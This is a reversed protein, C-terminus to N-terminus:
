GVRRQGNRLLMGKMEMIADRITELTKNQVEIQREARRNSETIVRMAEDKFENLVMFYRENDKRRAYAEYGLVLLLVIVIYPLNSTLLANIIKAWM